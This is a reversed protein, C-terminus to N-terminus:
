ERVGSALLAALIAAEVVLVPTYLGKHIWLPPYNGWTAALHQQLYAVGWAQVGEPLPHGARGWVALALVAYATEEMTTAYYGWGGDARQTQTLWTIAPAVLDPAFDHAALIIHGTVYYPSAHWKDFWFGGPQRVGAFFRLVKAVRGAREERDCYRLADLVHANASLSPNREFLYCRFLDAEEYRYLLQPDLRDGAQSLATFCIGTTDSEKPPHHDSAAWGEPTMTRRLFALGPEVADPWATYIEPWAHGLQQLIWGYEFTELPFFPPAGGADAHDALVTSLYAHAAANEPWQQLLFATASPSIGVGGDPGQVAGARAREFSSGLGELSVALPTTNLYALQLPALALKTQRLRQVGAFAGYPLDLGAEAAEALLAPFILEFGVTEAPDQGLHGAHQRIFRLGATIRAQDAPGAGWQQLSLVARLTSLLRDHYHIWPGGWSGDEHQHRRLWDLSAPFRPGPATGAGGGAPVAAVWATDYATSTIINSGAHSLLTHTRELITM